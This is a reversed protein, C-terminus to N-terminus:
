TNASQARIKAAEAYHALRTGELWSRYLTHHRTTEFVAWVDPPVHEPMIQKRCLWKYINIIKRIEIPVIYTSVMAQKAPAAEVFEAESWARLMTVQAALKADFEQHRIDDLHAELRNEIGATQNQDAYNRKKEKLLELSRILDAMQEPTVSHNNREPYIILPSEMKLKKDFIQPLQRATVHHEYIM